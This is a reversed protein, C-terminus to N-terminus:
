NTRSLAHTDNLCAVVLLVCIPRVDVLHVSFIGVVPM